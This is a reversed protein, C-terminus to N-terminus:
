MCCTLAYLPHRCMQISTSLLYVFASMCTHRCSNPFTTSTSLLLHRNVRSLVMGVYLIDVCVIAHLPHRCIHSSTLMFYVFTSHRCSSTCTTCKSLFIYIYVNSSCILVTSVISQMYLTDIYTSVLHVYTSM